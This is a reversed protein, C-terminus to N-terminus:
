ARDRGARSTLQLDVTLVGEGVPPPTKRLLEGHTSWWHRAEAMRIFRASRKGRRCAFWPLLFFWAAALHWWFSPHQFGEQHDMLLFLVVRYSWFFLYSCGMVLGFLAVRRQLFARDEESASLGRASAFTM